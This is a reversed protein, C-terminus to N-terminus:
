YKAFFYTKLRFMGLSLAPDRYFGDKDKKVPWTKGRLRMFITQQDLLENCKKVVGCSFTSELM